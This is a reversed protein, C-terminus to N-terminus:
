WLPEANRCFYGGGAEVLFYTPCSDGWCKHCMVMSDEGSGCYGVLDGRSYEVGCGGCESCHIKKRREIEQDELTHPTEKRLDALTQLKLKNNM